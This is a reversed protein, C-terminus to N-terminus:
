DSRQASTKESTPSFNGVKNAAEVVQAYIWGAERMVEIATKMNLDPKKGKWDHPGWDWSAIYSAAKELEREIEASGKILKGRQRREYIDDIHKRQVKQAERSEASRIQFVIGTPEETLPHLLDLPFLREYEVIASVDM